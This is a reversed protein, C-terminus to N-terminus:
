RRKILADILASARERSFNAPVSVGFKTLLRRQEDTVAPALKPEAERRGRLEERLKLVNSNIEDLKRMLEQWQKAEGVIEM